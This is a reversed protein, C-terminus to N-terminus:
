ICGSHPREAWNLDSLHVTYSKGSGSFRGKNQKSKKLFEVALSNNSIEPPPKKHQHTRTHTLDPTTRSVATKVDIKALWGVIEDMEYVFNKNLSGCPRPAKFKAQSLM